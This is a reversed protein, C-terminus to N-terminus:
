IKFRQGSRILVGGPEAVSLERAIRDRHRPKAHVVFVRRPPATMGGLAEQLMAPTLHGSALALNDMANPFSVEVIMADAKEAEIWLRDTRGTDGSYVLTTGNKKVVYGYCPVAHTVPFPRISFPGLVAEKDPVLPQFVIAPHEPSPIRLFDPWIVDNFIHVRLPGLVDEPALVTLPGVGNHMIRNDALFPIDKIHDLHAHTVVIWRLAIQEAEGLVGAATGADLMLHEDLLYGPANGDPTESGAAGLIRLEM